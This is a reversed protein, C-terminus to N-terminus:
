KKGRKSIVKPDIQDSNTDRSENSDRPVSRDEANIVDDSTESAEHDLDPIIHVNEVSIETVEKSNDVRM